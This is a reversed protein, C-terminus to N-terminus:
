CEKREEAPIDPHLNGQVRLTAGTVYVSHDDVNPVPSDSPARWLYVGISVIRAIDFCPVTQPQHFTPFALHDFETM